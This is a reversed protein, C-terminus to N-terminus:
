FKICLWLLSQVALTHLFFFSKSMIWFMAWALHGPNPKCPQSESHYCCFLNVLTCICDTQHNISFHMWDYQSFRWWVAPSVKFVSVVCCPVEFPSFTSLWFLLLFFALTLAQFLVVFCLAVTKHHWHTVLKIWDNCPVHLWM